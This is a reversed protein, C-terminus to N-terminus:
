LASKVRNILELSLASLIASFSRLAEHSHGFVSAWVKLALYFLPPTAEVEILYKWLNGRIAELGMLEDIWLSEQGIEIFRIAIGSVTLAFLAGFTPISANGIKISLKNLHEM